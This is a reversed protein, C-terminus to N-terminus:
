DYRIRPDFWGYSIDVILNILLIIVAVIVVFGQVIQYDKAFVAQVLLRGLGPINFVTEILVSGGVVFSLSMGILTIVPILGNKIGHRTIVLREKLGKSWATRIYDQRMVELMSSRTQRTISSISFIADCFVPMVAQSLSKGLNEFPSTYGSTPLWGLKLSFIYILIVGLWFSPITIGANAVITVINDIWTGRRTASLIGAPVGLIISIFLALLSIYLTIPLKQKILETVATHRSISTGLDGHFVGGLWSFYQVMLPKDLGYKHQLEAIQEETSETLQGSSIYILIPDGPLTHMSLFVLLTVVLLVIASYILRRIIYTRL